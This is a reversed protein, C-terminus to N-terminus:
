GQNLACVSCVRACVCVCVCMCACVWVCVCACVYVFMCVCVCVSSVRTQMDITALHQQVVSQDMTKVSSLVHSSEEYHRSARSRGGRRDVLRRSVENYTQFHKKAQSLYDLRSFLDAISTSRGSFGIFFKICTMGARIYDQTFHTHTHTHAHSVFRSNWCSHSVKMFLQTKYLVSFLGKQTFYRCAATLYAEWTSLTHDVRQLCEEVHQIQGTKMAPVWLHDIFLDTSCNQLSLGQYAPAYAPPPPPPLLPM